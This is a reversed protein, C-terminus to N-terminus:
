SQAVPNLTLPLILKLDLFRRNAPYADSYNFSPRLNFCTFSNLAEKM